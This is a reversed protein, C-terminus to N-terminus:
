GGQPGTQRPDTQVPNVIVRSVDNLDIRDFAIAAPQSKFFALLDALLRYKAPYDDYGLRIAKPTDFAILTLGLERDVQITSLESNPVVSGAKRGLALVQMVAEMPRSTPPELAAASGPIPLALGARTGTRDVARVDAVQLGNVVPLDAPDPSEWQKFLEGQANLLFRPGLSVLATPTHERIRIRLGAPIERRVEAEAIWPHALLKRRAASLNVSLVNVGPRVGAVEAITKPSLREGGDIQLDKANFYDSQVFMDYVFVFFGSVFVVLVAGTFVQLALAVRGLLTRRRAAAARRSINHRPRRKVAARGGEPKRARARVM